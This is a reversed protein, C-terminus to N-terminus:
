FNSWCNKCLCTKWSWYCKRGKKASRVVKKGSCKIWLFSIAKLSKCNTGINKITNLQKNWQDKIAKLQEKNKDEINKLIKLPGEKKEQERLGKNLFKIWHLIILDLKNLLVQSLVWANVMWVNMNPLTTLLFHLYKLRKEYQAENKM